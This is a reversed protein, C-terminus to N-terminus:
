EIVYAVRDALDETEQLAKKDADTLREPRTLIGDINPKWERNQIKDLTKDMQAITDIGAKQAYAVTTAIVDSMEDEVGDRDFTGGAEGRRLAKNLERTYIAEMEVPLMGSKFCLEMVEELIKGADAAPRVMRGGNGIRWNWIAVYQRPEILNEIPLKESM